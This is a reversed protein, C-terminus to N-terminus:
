DVVVDRDLVAEVGGAAAADTPRHQGLLDAAGGGLLALRQGLDGLEALPDVPLHPAHAHRQRRADRGAGARSRSGSSGAAFITSRSVVGITSSRGKESPSLTSANTLPM